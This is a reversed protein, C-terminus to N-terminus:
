LLRLKTHLDQKSMYFKQSSPQCGGNAKKIHKPNKFPGYWVCGAPRGREGDMVTVIADANSTPGNSGGMLVVM